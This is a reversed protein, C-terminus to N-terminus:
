RQAYRYLRTRQATAVLGTWEACSHARAAKYSMDLTSGPLLQTVLSFGRGQGWCESDLWSVLNQSHLPRANALGHSSPVDNPTGGGNLHNFIRTPYVTSTGVWYEYRGTPLAGM